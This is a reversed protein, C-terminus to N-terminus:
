FINLWMEVIILRADRKQFVPLCHLGLDSAEFHLMQDPDGTQKCFTRNSNSYVNFVGGMLGLILFPSTWNIFIPFAM